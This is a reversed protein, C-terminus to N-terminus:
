QRSQISASMDEPNPLKKTSHRRQRAPPIGLQARYKAVTRRKIDVGAVHLKEAIEDDSLPGHKYEQAVIEEVKARISAWGLVEGDGTEAGGTFFRRLPYIGRPTQVYKGDVSSTGSVIM